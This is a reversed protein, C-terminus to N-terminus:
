LYISASLNVALVGGGAKKGDILQNSSGMFTVYLVDLDEKLRGFQASTPGPVALSNKAGVIIQQQQGDASIYNITNGNGTTAFIAGTSTVAIDDYSSISINTLTTALLQPLGFTGNFTLPIRGIIGLGSNTFYLTQETDAWRLGNVGLQTKTRSLLEHNPVAVTVEGSDIDIAWVLGLQSDAAYYTSPARFAAGNLLAAQPVEAILTSQVQNKADLGGTLNVSMIEWTGPIGMYTATNSSGVCVAFMDPSYEAIGLTSIKNDFEKILFYTSNKPNVLYLYPKDVRTVLLEGTARVALNELHADVEVEIIKNVSPAISDHSLSRSIDVPHSREINTSKGLVFFAAMLLELM